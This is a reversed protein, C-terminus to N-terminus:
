DVSQVYFKIDVGAPIEFHNFLKCLHECTVRAQLMDKYFYKAPLRICINKDVKLLCYVGYM